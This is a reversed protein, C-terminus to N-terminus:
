YINRYANRRLIKNELRTRLSVVNLSTKNKETLVESSHFCKTDEIHLTM